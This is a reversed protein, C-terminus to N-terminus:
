GRGKEVGEGGGVMGEGKGGDKEGRSRRGLMGVRRNAELYRCRLRLLSMARQFLLLAVALFNKDNAICQPRKSRSSAIGTGTGRGGRPRRGRGAEGLERRSKRRKIRRKM